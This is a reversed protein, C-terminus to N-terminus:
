SALLRYRRFGASTAALWTGDPGGVLWGDEPDDLRHIVGDRGIAVFRGAPGDLRAVIFDGAFCAVEHWFCDDDPPRIEQLVPFAPPHRLLRMEGATRGRLDRPFSRVVLRGGDHSTTIIRSGSPDADGLVWDDWGADVVRLETGEAAQDAPSDASKYNGSRGCGPQGV